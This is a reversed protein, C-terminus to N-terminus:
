TKINTYLFGCENIWLQEDTCQKVRMIDSEAREDRYEDAMLKGAYRSWFISRGISPMSVPDGGNAVCLFAYEDNWLMTPDPTQNEKAANYTVGSVRVQRLEFIAALAEPRINGDANLSANYRAGLRERISKNMGLNLYTSYGVVLLNPLEGTRKLISKRGTNVDGVPDSNELDDWENTPAVGTVGDQPFTTTNCVLDIVRKEAARILDNAKITAIGTGLDFQNAYKQRSEDPLAEELKHTVCKYTSSGIETNTRRADAGPAVRTQDASALRMLSTRKMRYIVGEQEDVSLPPLIADGVLLDARMTAENLIGAIDERPAATSTRPILAM